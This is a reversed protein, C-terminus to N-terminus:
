CRACRRADGEALPLQARLIPADRLRDGGIPARQQEIGLDGEAVVPDTLEILLEAVAHVRDEM